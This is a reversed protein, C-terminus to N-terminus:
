RSLRRQTRELVYGTTAGLSAPHRPNGEIKTPRGGHSEVLVGEAYGCLTVASAFFLPQGPVTEEPSRAYPLIREEPQKTCGTLGALALSAGM